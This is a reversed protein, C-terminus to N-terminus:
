TSHNAIGNGTAQQSHWWNMAEIMSEESLAQEDLDIDDKIRMTTMVTTGDYLHGTHLPSLYLANDNDNGNIGCGDNSPM